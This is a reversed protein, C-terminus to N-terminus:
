YVLREYSRCLMSLEFLVRQNKRGLYIQRGLFTLEEELSQPVAFEMQMNLQKVKGSEVDYELKTKVEFPMEEEHHELFGSVMPVPVGRDLVKSAYSHSLVFIAAGMVIASMPSDFFLWCIEAFVPWWCCLVRQIYCEFFRLRNNYGGMVVRLYQAALAHMFFSESCNDHAAQNPKQDDVNASWGHAGQMRALHGDPERLYAAHCLYDNEFFVFM